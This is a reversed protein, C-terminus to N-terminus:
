WLPVSAKIGWTTRKKDSEQGVWAGFMLDNNSVDFFRRPLRFQFAVFPVNFSTGLVPAAGISLEARSRSVIVTELGPYGKKDRFSYLQTGSVKQLPLVFDTGGITIHLPNTAAYAPRPGFAASLVVAATIIFKKM